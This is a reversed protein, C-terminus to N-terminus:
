HIPAHSLSGIKQMLAKVGFTVVLDCLQSM